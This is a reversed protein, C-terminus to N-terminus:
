GLTPASGDRSPQNNPNQSFGEGNKSEPRIRKAAPELLLDKFGETLVQVNASENLPTDNTSSFIKEVLDKTDEDGCLVVTAGRARKRKM